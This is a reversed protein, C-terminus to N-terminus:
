SQPKGSKIMSYYFVLGLVISQVSCRIIFQNSCKSGFDLLCAKDEEFLYFMVFTIVPNFILIFILKNKNNKMM